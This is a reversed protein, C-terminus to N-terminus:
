PLTLSTEHAIETIFRCGWRPRGNADDGLSYPTWPDARCWILRTEDATDPALTVHRLGHLADRIGAAVTFGDRARGTTGTARATIQFAALQERAYGQTPPAPKYGVAVADVPTDPLDELFLTAGDRGFVGLGQSDLWACIAATLM